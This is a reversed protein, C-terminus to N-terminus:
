LGNKLSEKFKEPIACYRTLFKTIAEQQGKPLGAWKDSLMLNQAQRVEERFRREDEEAKLTAQRRMEKAVAEDRERLYRALAEGLAMPNFCGYFQQGYRGALLRILFVGLESAKLRPFEHLWTMAVVSLQEPTMMRDAPIRMMLNLGDLAKVLWGMAFEEGLSEALGGITPSKTTAMCRLEDRRAARFLVAPTYNATFWRRYSEAKAPDFSKQIGGCSPERLTM